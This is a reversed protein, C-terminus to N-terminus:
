KKILDLGINFVSTDDWVATIGSLMLAAMQADQPLIGSEVMTLILTTIDGSNQDGAKRPKFFTDWDAKDLYLYTHGDAVTVNMPVGHLAWNQITQITEDSVNTLDLNLMSKLLEKLEAPTQALVSNILEGLEPASEAGLAAAIINVIDLKVIFEGNKEIWTALGSPSQVFDTATALSTIESAKPYGTGFMAGMGWGMLKDSGNLVPHEVYRALINGDKDLEINSLFQPLMAGGMMRFLGAMTAASVANKDSTKYEVYLPSTLPYNPTPATNGGLTVNEATYANLEYVGVLPHIAGGENGENDDDSCATFLSVACILAFLYFLRKKM